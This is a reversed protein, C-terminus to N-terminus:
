RDPFAVEKGCDGCRAGAKAPAGCAKCRTWEVPGAKRPAAALEGSAAAKPLRMGCKDCVAGLAQVSKCYRCIAPGRPARTRPDADVVRGADLDPVAETVVAGVNPAVTRELDALPASPLDPGSPVSTADLGVLPETPVSRAGEEFRTEELADLPLIPM